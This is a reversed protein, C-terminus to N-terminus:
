RAGGGLATTQEYISAGRREAADAVGRVLKAPNLAATNANFTGGYNSAIRIRTTM